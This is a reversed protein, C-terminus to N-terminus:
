DTKVETKPKPTMRFTITGAEVDKVLDVDMRLSRAKGYLQTRMSEIDSQFDEGQTIKWVDGDTWEDWPHRGTKKPMTALKEAM